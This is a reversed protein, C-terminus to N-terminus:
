RYVIGAPVRPLSCHVASCFAAFLLKASAQSCCLSPIRGYMVVTFAARSM